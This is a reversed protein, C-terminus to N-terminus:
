WGSFDVSHVLLDGSNGVIFVQAKGEFTDKTSTGDYVGSISLRVRCESRNERWFIRVSDLNGGSRIFKAYQGRYYIAAVSRPMRTVGDASECFNEYQSENICKRDPEETCSGDSYYTYKVGKEPTLPEPKPCYKYGPETDNNRNTIACFVVPDKVERTNVVYQLNGNVPIVRAMYGSLIGKCREHISCLFHDRSVYFNMSSTSFSKDGPKKGVFCYQNKPIPMKVETSSQKDHLTAMRSIIKISTEIFRQSAVDSCNYYNFSNTSAVPEGSQGPSVSPALVIGLALTIVSLKRMNTKGQM